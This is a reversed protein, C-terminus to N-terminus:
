ARFLFRRFFSSLFCEVCMFSKISEHRSSKVSSHSRALFSYVSSSYLSFIRAFHFECFMCHFLFQQSFVSKLNNTQICKSKNLNKKRSIGNEIKMNEPAPSFSPRGGECLCIFSHSCIICSHRHSGKRAYWITHKNRFAAHLNFQERRQAMEVCVCM